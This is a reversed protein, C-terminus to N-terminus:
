EVLKASLISSHKKTRDTRGRLDDDYGVLIKKLNVNNFFDVTWDSNAFSLLVAKPDRELQICKFGAESLKGLIHSARVFKVVGGSQFKLSSWDLGQYVWKSDFELRELRHLVMERQMSNIMVPNIVDKRHTVKYCDFLSEFEEVFPRLPEFFPKLKFVDSIYEQLFTTGSRWYGNIIVRTTPVPQLYKNLYFITNREIRKATTEM